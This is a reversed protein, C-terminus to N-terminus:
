GNTEGGELVKYFIKEQKESEHIVSTIFLILKDQTIKASKLAGGKEARYLVVKDSPRIKFVPSRVFYDIEGGKIAKYEETDTILQHVKM